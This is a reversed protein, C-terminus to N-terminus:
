KNNMFCIIIITEIKPINIEGEIKPMEINQKNIEPIKVRKISTEKININKLYNIKDKNIEINPVELKGEIKSKNIM